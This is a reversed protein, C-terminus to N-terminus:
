DNLKHFTCCVLVRLVYVTLIWFTIIIRKNLIAFGDLLQIYLCLLFYSISSSYFILHVCNIFADFFVFLYFM